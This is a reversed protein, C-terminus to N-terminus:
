GRGRRNFRLAANIIEIDEDSLQDVSTLMWKLYEPDEKAIDNVDEGFHKKGFLLSGSDDIVGKVRM